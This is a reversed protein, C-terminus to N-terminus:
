LRASPQRLWRSFHDRYREFTISPVDANQVATQFCPQRPQALNAQHGHCAWCWPFLQLVLFHDAIPHPRKFGSGIIKFRCGQELALVVHQLHGQRNQLFTELGCLWKKHVHCADSCQESHIM